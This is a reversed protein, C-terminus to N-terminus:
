RIVEGEICLQGGQISVGDMVLFLLSYPVTWQQGDGLRILAKKPNLKEVMGYIEYGLKSYWGVRAGVNLSNRDLGESPNRPNIKINLGELNISYFKVNWSENDQTNVVSVWTKRIETITAEVLDNKQNSFYTIKMGIKLHQKIAENQLPDDLIISIASRLRNLEFLSLREVQELIVNIDSM